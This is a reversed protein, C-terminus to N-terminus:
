VWLLGTLVKNVTVTARGVCKTSCLTFFGIHRVEKEEEEVLKKTHEPLCPKCYKPVAQLDLGHTKFHLACAVRFENPCEDQLVCLLPVLLSALM